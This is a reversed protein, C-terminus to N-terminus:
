VNEVSLNMKFQCNDRDSAKRITKEFREQIFSFEMLSEPKSQMWYKDFEFFLYCYFQHFSEITPYSKDGRTVSNYFHTKAYGNKLLRYAMSTLNIGVIAFTYGFKPHQSHSLVHRSTGPFQKAFYLLNELGLVGMGRFDTSPDDGQFGIEQWQKTVRVELKTEPMLNHWLSLLKKEHEPNDTSYQEVKLDEVMTLLRRYGWIQEVCQAFSKPFGPHFKPNIKKVLLVSNLSREVIEKPILSEDMSHSTVENLCYVLHKIQSRQSLM